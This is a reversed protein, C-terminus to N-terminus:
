RLGRLKLFGSGFAIPLPTAWTHQNETGLGVGAGNRQPKSVELLRQGGGCPSDFESVRILSENTIIAGTGHEHVYKRSLKGM